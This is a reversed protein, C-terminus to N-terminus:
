NDKGELYHDAFIAFDVLDVGGDGNLDCRIEQRLVPYTAGENILWIEVFDWGAETFTSRTQMQATPLGAVNTVTGENYGISETVGHTQTDTDWFCNSVDGYYYNGGVLGGVHWTGSVDGTCYCNSLSGEWNRGVLGGVDGDGSVDGTCYCNTISGYSNRGVLGGVVSRGSVSGTAYCDSISGSNIGVLGGVHEGTSVDGTSYCNSISGSNIGVLGGVPSGGRVHGTCYCNSLSGEWNRGVLGGVDGDGGVDGTSYCNTISGYSNRGVLGGVYYYGSVSFGELGLNSVEGGDVCGFLGLYDNGPAAGHITLNTIKHDNGDFVGTFAMGQFGGSSSTDPAIVATSYTLGALNVDTELRTYDDWYNADAAFENFDVLSEIRWPDQQTGSGDLALATDATLLCCIILLVSGIGFGRDVAIPQLSRPRRQRRFVNEAHLSYAESRKGGGAKAAAKESLRTVFCAKPSTRTIGGWLNSSRTKAM